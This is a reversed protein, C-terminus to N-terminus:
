KRKGRQRPAALEAFTRNKTYFRRYPSQPAPPAAKRKQRRLRLVRPVTRLGHWCWRAARTLLEPHKM